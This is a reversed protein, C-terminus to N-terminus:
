DKAWEKLEKYTAEGCIFKKNKSNYFFPVGGCLDKDISELLKENEENHWVELADVKIGEEKELKVVLKHMDLCHPCEEGYFEMLHSM